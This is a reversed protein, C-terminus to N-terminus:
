KKKELDEEEQKRLIQDKEIWNKELLIAFLASNEVFKMIEFEEETLTGHSTDLYTKWM